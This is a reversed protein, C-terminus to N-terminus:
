VAQPPIALLIEVAVPAGDRVAPRFQWRELEALTLRRVEANPARLVSLDKFRGAEDLYGHIIIYGSRAVMTAPPLFTVLPYPAKLPSPAGITVVNGTVKPATAQERPVCYQMLWARPSGVQLYVTYVPQGSLAAVSEPFAQDSSSQVVVDFVANVPHEIRVPTAYQMPLVALARAFESMQQQAGGAGGGAAGGGPAGGPTGAAAAGSYGPLEPLRGIQNGLPVVVRDALPAPNPSLALIQVPEGVAPSLSGGRGAPVPAPAQFQRAPGRSPPPLRLRAEEPGALMSAIRLGGNDGPAALQPPADLRPAVAPAGSRGPEVFKRAAPRPLAPGSMLVLQPLRAGSTLPMEPPLHPQILTQDSGTRRVREPLRFERAALRVPAAQGGLQAVDEKRVVEPAPAPEAKGPQPPQLRPKEAPPAAPLYLREPIRIELPRMALVRRRWAEDESVPLLGVLPPLGAILGFHLLLSAALARWRRPQPRWFSEFLRAYPSLVDGSEPGEDIGLEMLSAPQM